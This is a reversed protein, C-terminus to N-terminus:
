APINKKEMGRLIESQRAQKMRDYLQNKEDLPLAEYGPLAYCKNLIAQRTRDSRTIGRRTEGDAFAAASVIISTM